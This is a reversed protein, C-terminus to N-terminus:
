VGSEKNLIRTRSELSPESFCLPSWVSFIHKRVVIIKGTEASEYRINIWGKFGSRGIEKRLQSNSISGTVINSLPIDDKNSIKEAIAEWLRENTERIETRPVISGGNKQVECMYSMNVRALARDRASLKGDAEELYEKLERDLMLVQPMLDAAIHSASASAAALFAFIFVTFSKTM